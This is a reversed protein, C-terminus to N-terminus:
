DEMNSIYSLKHTVFKYGPLLVNVLSLSLVTAFAGLMGPSGYAPRFAPEGVHVKMAVSSGAFAFMNRNAARAARSNQLGPEEHFFFETASKKTTNSQWHGPGIGFSCCLASSDQLLRSSDQNRPTRCLLMSALSDAFDLRFCQSFGSQAAQSLSHLRPVHCLVGALVAIRRAKSDWLSKIYRMNVYHMCTWANTYIIFLYLFLGNFFYLLYFM